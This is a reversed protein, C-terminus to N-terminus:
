DRLSAAQEQIRATTMKALTLNDRARLKEMSQKHERVSDALSRMSHLSQQSAVNASTGLGVQVRALNIDSIPVCVQDQYPNM